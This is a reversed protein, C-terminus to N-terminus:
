APRLPPRPGCSALGFQLPDSNIAFNRALDSRRLHWVNLPVIEPKSDRTVLYAHGIPWGTTECVMDLVAQLATEVTSAENAARIVGQLLRTTAVERTLAEEARKRETIDRANIVSTPAGGTDFFASGAVEVTRWSGDHHRIRLDLLPGPGPGSFTQDIAAAVKPLDDPHILDPPTKGILEEPKYGLIREVSLSAYTFNGGPGITWIIDMANEILARFHREQSRVLEETRRRRAILWWLFPASFSIMISADIVGGPFGHESPVRGPMLFWMVLTEAVFVVVLAALVLGLPSSTVREFTRSFVHAVTRRLRGPARNAVSSAEIAFPMAVDVEPVSGPM